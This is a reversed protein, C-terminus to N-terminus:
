TWTLLKETIYLRTKGPQVLILCPNIHRAPPCLATGGMLSSGAVGLGQTLCEVGSGGLAHEHFQLGYTLIVTYGHVGILM